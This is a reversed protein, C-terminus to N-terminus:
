AAAHDTELRRAPQLDIVLPHDETTKAGKDDYHDVSETGVVLAYRGEGVTVISGVAPLKAKEATAM